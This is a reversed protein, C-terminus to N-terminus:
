KTYRPYPKAKLLDTKYQSLVAPPLDDLKALELALEREIRKNDLSIVNDATLRIHPKAPRTEPFPGKYDSWNFDQKIFTALAAGHCRNLVTFKTGTVTAIAWNVKSWDVDSEKLLLLVAKNADDTPCDWIRTREHRKNDEGCYKIHFVNMGPKTKAVPNSPVSM